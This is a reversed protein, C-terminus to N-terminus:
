SSGIAEVFGVVLIVRMVGVLVVALAKREGHAAGFASGQQLDDADSRVVFSIAM